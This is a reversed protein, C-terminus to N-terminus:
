VTLPTWEHNSLRFNRIQEKIEPAINQLPERQPRGTYYGQILDVGIRLCESLEEATEVGEALALIGNNHAFEVISKVLHQKQPNKQIKSILMRDIKVYQPMYRLLNNANSFGSGYDDVAISCGYTDIKTKLNTLQNDDLESEETFEIVFRGDNNMLRSAFLKEDSDELAVGPLSNIFVKANGFADINNQVEGTVNLLTYKEIDNLRDLYKASKLIQLPTVKAVECRMLAEYAFISGDKTDVIPQYHYTFLNKNLIDSVIQNCKVEDMVEAQSNQAGKNTKANVKKHNKLTTVQNVLYELDSVNGPEGLLNIHHIHLKFDTGPVIEVNQLENEIRDAIYEYKESNASDQFAILFEDNAMRCSFDNETTSNQIQHAVAKIAREGIERGYIENIQHIGKIDIAVINIKSTTDGTILEKEAIKLFGSYNYLGTLADRIQSSQIKDLLARMYRQRYFAEMGSMIDRMWIRFSQDYFKVERGYNLVTYGFCRDDSYLPNFIFTTPYDREGAFEPLLDKTKFKETLSYSSETDTCHIVRNMTADYGIRIAKEGEFADPSLFANNFCIDFTNFPRIQYVYKLLMQLLNSIRSQSMLDELMHNFDSFMSKSSQQTRWQVRVKQTVFETDCECGCSGGIYIPSDSIFPGIEKGNLKSHVWKLCYVGCERAPINASTLPKPSFRGAEISDYGALAIDEPIRLGNESLTAAAGIAMIDNACILAEPMNDRDKLLVEAFSEASDYWYNGHYIWDPNIHVDHDNMSDLFANYRQVSHPHGEKGGLFAIKKYGHVEIMHDVIKRFPSYHDMMISDFYESESDVVIVPGNFKEHIKEQLSDSVGPSLITDSLLVVADFLDYNILEYINSDGINRQDTEQYKQYMTFICVDYDHAYAETIFGNLFKSQTAEDIQAILVAIKKRM